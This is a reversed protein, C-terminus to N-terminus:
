RTTFHTLVLAALIVLALYRGIRSVAFLILWLMAQIYILDLANM